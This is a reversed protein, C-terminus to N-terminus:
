SPSSAQRASSPMGPKSVLRCDVSSVPQAAVTKDTSSASATAPARCWRAPWRRRPASSAGSSAMGCAASAIPMANKSSGEPQSTRQTDGQHVPQVTGGSTAVTPWGEPQGSTSTSTTFSTGNKSSITALARCCTRAGAMSAAARAM